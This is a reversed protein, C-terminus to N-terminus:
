VNELIEETRLLVRYEYSVPKEQRYQELRKRAQGRTKRYEIDDWDDDWDGKLKSQIVYKLTLTMVGSKSM